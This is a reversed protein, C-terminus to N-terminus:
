QKVNNFCSGSPCFGELMKVDYCNKSCCGYEAYQTTGFRKKVSEYTYEKECKDCKM